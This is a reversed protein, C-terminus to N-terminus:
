YKVFKYTGQTSSMLLESREKIASQLAKCRATCDELQASLYNPLVNEMSSAQCRAEELTQQLPPLQQELTRLNSLLERAEAASRPATWTLTARELHSVAAISEELNLTVQKLKQLLIIIKFNCSPYM